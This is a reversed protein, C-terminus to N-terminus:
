VEEKYYAIYYLLPNHDVLLILVSSHLIIVYLSQLGNQRQRSLLSTFVRTHGVVM